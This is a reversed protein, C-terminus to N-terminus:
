ALYQPVMEVIARVTAATTEADDAQISQIFAQIFTGSLSTAATGVGGLVTDRVAPDCGELVFLGGGTAASILWFRARTLMARM